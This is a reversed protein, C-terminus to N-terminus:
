KNLKPLIQRIVYIYKSQNKTRPMERGTACSNTIAMSFIRRLPTPLRVLVSEAIEKLAHMCTIAATARIVEREGEIVVRIKPIARTRRIPVELERM